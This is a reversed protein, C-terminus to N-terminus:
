SPQSGDYPSDLSFLPIDAALSAGDDDELFYRGRMVGSPTSLPAGSTYRFVGGPAIVPQQGIVGEGDVIQTRGDADIIEWHRSILRWSTDTGNEVEVTYAWIFKFRAPESEDHLFKPKVRVKLGDTTQEYTPAPKRPM